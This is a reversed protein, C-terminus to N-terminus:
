EGGAEMAKQINDLFEQSVGGGKNMMMAMMEQIEEKGAGAKEMAAHVDLARATLDDLSDGAVDKLAKIM